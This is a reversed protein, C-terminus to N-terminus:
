VLPATPDAEPTAAVPEPQAVADPAPPLDPTPTIAALAAAPPDDVRSTFSTTTNSGSFNAADAYFDALSSGVWTITVEGM